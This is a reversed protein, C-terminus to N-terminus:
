SDLQKSLELALTQTPLNGNEKSVYRTTPNHSKLPFTHKYSVVLRYGLAATSNQIGVLSPHSKLNSQRRILVRKYM